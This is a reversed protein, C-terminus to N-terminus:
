KSIRVNRFQIKFDYDDTRDKCSLELLAITDINDAVGEFNLTLRTEIGPLLTHVVYNSDSQKNAFEIGSVSIENSLNDFMRTRYFDNYRSHIEIVKDSKNNIVSLDCRIKRTSMKCQELEFSIDKVIQINVTKKINKQKPNNSSEVGAEIAVEKELLENIAATRAFDSKASDIIDATDSDLVKVTLHVNDGFPTLTGTVLADVGAIKGLKRATASDILGTASLKNEKIISKLHTRDIVRFGKGTGALAVSFEEAIFRDLQTVNGELDTFDVVAVTKKGKDAIKEAMTASLQEIEKEYGWASSALLALLMATGCISFLRNKTNM